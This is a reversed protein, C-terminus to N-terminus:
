KSVAPKLKTSREVAKSLDRVSSSLRSQLKRAEDLETVLSSVKRDQADSLAKLAALSNTGIDKIQNIEDKTM